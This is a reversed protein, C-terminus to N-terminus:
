EVAGGTMKIITGNIYRTSDSCLLMTVDAIESLEAFRGAPIRQLRERVYQEPTMQTEASHVAIMRRVNEGWAPGPCLANIRLHEGEEKSVAQVLGTLAHKTMGYVSRHAPTEIGFVSSVLVICGSASTALYPISEKVAAFAGSQNVAIMADLDDYALDRVSAATPNVAACYVMADFGHWSHVAREIVAIVGDPSKLDAILTADVGPLLSLDELAGVNSGGHAVVRAGASSLAKVLVTGLGGSAGFVVFRKDEIGPPAGSGVFKAGYETM